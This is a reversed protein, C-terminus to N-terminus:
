VLPIPLPVPHKSLPKIQSKVVANYDHQETGDGLTHKLLRELLLSPTVESGRAGSSEDVENIVHVHGLNVLVEGYLRVSQDSLVQVVVMPIITRLQRQLFDGLSLVHRAHVGRGSGEGDVRPELSM